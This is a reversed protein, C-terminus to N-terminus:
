ILLLLFYVEVSKLEEDLKLHLIESKRRKIKILEDKENQSKRIIGQAETNLKSLYLLSTQKVSEIVENFVNYPLIKYKTKLNIKQNLLNSQIKINIYYVKNNTYILKNNINNLIENIENCNKNIEKLEM